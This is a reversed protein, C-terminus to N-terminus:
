EYVEVCVTEDKECIECKCIHVIFGGCDDWEQQLTYVSSETYCQICISKEKSSNEFDDKDKVSNKKEFTYCCVPLDQYGISCKTTCCDCIFSHTIQQQRAYSVARGRFLTNNLMKLHVCEVCLTYEDKTINNCGCLTYCIICEPYDYGM